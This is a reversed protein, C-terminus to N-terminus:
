RLELLSLYALDPCQESTRRILRQCRYGMNFMGAMASSKASSKDMGVTIQRTLITQVYGVMSYSFWVTYGYM